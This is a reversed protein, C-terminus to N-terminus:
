KWKHDLIPYKGIDINPKIIWMIIFRITQKITIIINKISNTDIKM